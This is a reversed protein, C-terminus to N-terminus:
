YRNVQFEQLLKLYQQFLGLGSELFSGIKSTVGFITNVINDTPINLKKFINTLPVDIISWIKMLTPSKTLIKGVWTGVRGIPVISALLLIFNGVSLNGNEDIGTFFKIVQKINQGGWMKDLNNYGYIHYFNYDFFDWINGTKWAKQGAQILKDWTYFQFGFPNFHSNLIGAFPGYVSGNNNIKWAEDSYKFLDSLPNGNGTLYPALPGYISFNNPNLYLKGNGQGSGSNIQGSNGYHNGSHGCNSNGNGSNGPTIGHSLYVNLLVNVRNNATNLDSQNGSVTATNNILGVNGTKATIELSVTSGSTLNGISWLGNFLNYLNSSISIHKLGSPLYYTAKVGKADSPGNNKVKIIFKVNEGVYM